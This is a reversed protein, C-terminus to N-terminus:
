MCRKKAYAILDGVTQLEEFDVDDVEIDFEYELSGTLEIMELSDLNLDEVLRLDDTVDDDSYEALIGRVKEEISRAQLETM